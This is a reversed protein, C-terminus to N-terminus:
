IIRFILYLPQNEDSFRHGRGILLRLKQFSCKQHKSRRNGMCIEELAQIGSEAAQVGGLGQSQVGVLEAQSKVFDSRNIEIRSHRDNRGQIGSAASRSGIRCEYKTGKDQHKVKPFCTNLFLVIAKFVVNKQFGKASIGMTNVSDYGIVGQDIAKVM